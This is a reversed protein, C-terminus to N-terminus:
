KGTAKEFKAVAFNYDYLAQVQNNKATKFSVNADLLELISAAGLNYKEQTLKLDEEASNLAEETLFIKQEAENLSLYAQRIELELDRKSQKFNERALNLNAKASKVNSTTLFGEFLNMSIRIGIDWSDYNKWDSSSKPSEIDSWSYDGFFSISPFYASRAITLGSHAQNVEMRSKDIQPHKELAEKLEAE